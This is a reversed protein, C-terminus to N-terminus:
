AHDFDFLGKESVFSPLSAPKDRSKQAEELASIRKNIEDLEADKLIVAQVNLAHILCRAYGLRASDGEAPKFRKAKLRAQLQAILASNAKLIAERNSFDVSRNLRINNTEM